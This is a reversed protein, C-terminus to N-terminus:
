RGAPPYQALVAAVARDIERADAKATVRGRWVLDRTRADVLDVVMTGEDIEKQIPAATASPGSWTYTRGYTSSDVGKQRGVRYAVALDPQAAGAPRLGRAVLERALADETRRTLDPALSSEGWRQELEAATMMAFTRYASFDTENKFDQSVKIPVSSCAGVALLSLPVLVQRVRRCARAPRM